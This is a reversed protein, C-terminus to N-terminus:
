RKDRCPGGGGNNLFDTYVIIPYAAVVPMGCGPHEVPERRDWKLPLECSRGQEATTGQGM